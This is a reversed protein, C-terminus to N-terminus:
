KNSDSCNVSYFGTCYHLVLINGRASTFDQCDPVAGWGTLDLVPKLTCARVKLGAFSTQVYLDTPSGKRAATIIGDARYVRVVYRASQRDSTVGDPVLMNRCLCSSYPRDTKGATRM